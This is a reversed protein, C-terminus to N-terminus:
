KDHQILYMDTIVKIADQIIEVQKMLPIVELQPVHVFLSNFDRMDKVALGGYCYIYNCVYRGPDFSLAVNSGKAKLVQQVYYLDIKSFFQEDLSYNKDIPQELPQNGDVDPIRFDAMNYYCHELLISNTGANVGLSLLITLTKKEKNVNPAVTGQIKGDDVIFPKNMDTSEANKMAVISQIYEQVSGMSVRLINRTKIHVNEDFTSILPVIKMTPNVKIDGFPGFGTVHIHIEDYVNTNGKIQLVM